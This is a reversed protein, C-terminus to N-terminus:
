SAPLPDLLHPGNNGKVSNVATSVAYIDLGTPPAMLSKIEDAERLEPDLWQDWKDPTIAMPMRDHVRGVDDTATTTIITYTWLLEASDDPANKDRWVEYLGALALTSGDKPRIAFPQKLLKGGKGIQETQFWEYFADVAILARRAKFASRFSPKEHM